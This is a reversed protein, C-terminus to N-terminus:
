RGKPDHGYQNRGHTGDQIAWVILILLGLLPIFGLLLWLGNHNTDHLRRVSVALNPIIIVLSFLGSAVYFLRGRGKFVAYKEFVAMYQNMLVRFTVEKERAASM